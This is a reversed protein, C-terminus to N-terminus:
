PLQEFRVTNPATSGVNVLIPDRDNSTGTYKVVGDMNLDEPWYGTVTGNPTTSGVRVLVRDRDNNAGTYRISGDHDVDGALLVARTGITKRAGTGYTSTAPLSFLINTTTTSLALPSATMCGMHGRARVAVYYNGAPFNFVAPSVGDLGVVEGERQILCTRTQLVTSPSTANRLELLAWDVISNFAPSAVNFVSSAVTQGASEGVHSFGLATLPETTPILGAARLGDNMLLTTADYPGELLVRVSVPLNAFTVDNIRAIRDRGIGNYSTFDGAAIFGGQHYAVATPTTSGFANAFGNGTNFSADTSGDDNLRYRASVILKGVHDLVLPGGGQVTPSFTADFSGDTNLRCLGNATNGDYASFSGSVYCKGNDLPLIYKPTGGTFGTTQNFSNDITGDSHLRLLHNRGSGAYDSFAGALLIRGDPLVATREIPGAATVGSTFTTDISGDNRYRHLTCTLSSLVGSRHHNAAIIRGDPQLSLARAEEGYAIASTFTQDISGDPNMRGIGFGTSGFADQGTSLVGTALLRGDPQVMLDNVHLVGQEILSMWGLGCSFSNDLAGNALLRVVHARYNGDFLSYNGGVLMRGDPQVAIATTTGDFGNYAYTGDVGGTATLRTHRPTAVGACTTFAGIVNVKGDSRAMVATVAGNPGPGPDFSSLLAGTTTLIALKNRPIGSYTTFDGGCLLSGDSRLAISRVTGNFGPSTIFTGDVTGSPTLRAVRDCPVGNVSTMDGGLQIAGDSRLAISRVAGNCGTGPDFSNDFWNLPTSTPDIRAIRNRSLGAALTFDGGFLVKSDPQVCISYVPGNTGGTAGGFWNGDRSGDANLRTLNSVPTNNYQSFTGGVIIRDDSQVAIAMVRSSAVGWVLPATFFSADISGDLNLRCLNTYSGATFAGGVLIKGDAQTALADVEGQFYTAPYTFAPDVSGDANRREIFTVTGNSPVSGQGAWLTRGSPDKALCTLKMSFM